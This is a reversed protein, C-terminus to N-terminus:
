YLFDNPDGRMKPLCDTYCVMGDTADDVKDYINYPPIATKPFKSASQKAIRRAAALAVERHANMVAETFDRGVVVQVSCKSTCIVRSTAADASSRILVRRWVSLPAVSEMCRIPDGGPAFVCAWYETSGGAFIVAYADESPLQDAVSYHPTVVPDEEEPELPSEPDSTDSADVDSGNWPNASPDYSMMCYEFDWSSNGFAGAFRICPNPDEHTSGLPDTFTLSRNGVFAYRNWGQTGLGCDEIPDASVFRGILPDFVRGNMHVLETSDLM